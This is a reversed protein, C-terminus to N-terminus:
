YEPIRIFPGTARVRKEEQGGGRHRKGIGYGREGDDNELQRKREHDQQYPYVNYGTGLMPAAQATPQNNIQALIAQLNPIQAPPTASYAPPTQYSQPQSPQQIGSLIAQLNIAPAVPHQQVPPNQHTQQNTTSFKAFIAELQNAPAPMAAPQQQPPQQAQNQAQKQAQM